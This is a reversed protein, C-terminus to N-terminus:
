GRFVCFYVFVPGNKGKQAKEHKEHRNVRRGETWTKPMLAPAMVPSPFNSPPAQEQERSGAEAPTSV